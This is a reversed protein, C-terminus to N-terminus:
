FGAVDLGDAFGEGLASALQGSGRVDAAAGINHVEVTELVKAWLDRQIYVRMVINIALALAFYGIVMMAVMPISKTANDGAFMEEAPVGTLTVVLLASGGMYAAFAVTLLMWWGIVKWYLGYFADHPLNSSLGVGGIRIGDLWWRWERAKFEAYFFPALPFIFLAIPSLLWLWWGRKFFTWGDGEFDGRLDGYHTHRMKYRELAAERWPLALGLTLFVLLGWLMARFAYAWGSGDMWFRVGRWVTRTLRYRRARFIAFQGFAYFAIFLPTSAFAQWREFEIGVLFYALYIPVLIALAFLFGVLLEKARGTYEAADGDIATHTWLHRRIDTVLWFRYFGFTVLELMAGKTVLKRFESRNGSFDVRTPPLPPPLPESGIPTWQM